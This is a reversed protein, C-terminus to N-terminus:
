EYAPRGAPPRRVALWQVEGLVGVAVAQVVLYAQGLGTGAAGAFLLALCGIAWGINAFALALVGGRPPAARSALSAALAVYGILAAGSATLLWPSLGLAPGLVDPVALHLLATAAGSAADAWLVARLLRPTLAFTM